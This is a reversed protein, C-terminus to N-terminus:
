RGRHWDRRDWHRHHHRDWDRGGRIVVTPAAYYYPTPAYYVRPAPYYYVPPPPAYYSYGPTGISFSFSVNDRAAATGSLGALAAVALFVAIKKM